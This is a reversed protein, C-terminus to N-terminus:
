GQGLAFFRFLGLWQDFSLASPPLAPDFRLDRALRGMQRGTLARRLCQRVTRGSGFATAVFNHYLAQQRTEIIPPQRRAMWLLVADVSPPPEFNTRHLLRLVEVHWWPKLLPSSRSEPAYPGGVYREADQRRVILYAEQPPSPAEVLKGIIAATQNFPINAFVKYLTAPLPFRLFDENVLEVHSAARFETQLDRLLTLDLEVGILQRCRRALERTLAGRGPGIEM